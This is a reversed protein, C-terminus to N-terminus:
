STFLHNLIPLLSVISKWQCADYECLTLHDQYNGRTPTITCGNDKQPCNVLIDDLRNLIMTDRPRQLMIPEKEFVLRDM